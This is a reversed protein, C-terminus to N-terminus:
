EDERRHLGDNLTPALRLIPKSTIDTSNAIKFWQSGPDCMDDRSLCKCSNTVIDDSSDVDLCVTTGNGLKTSLYM